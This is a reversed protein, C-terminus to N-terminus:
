FLFMNKIDEQNLNCDLITKGGYKTLKSLYIQKWHVKNNDLIRKIWSAKLSYTFKQLNIMKIGGSEINKM